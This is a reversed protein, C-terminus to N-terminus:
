PNASDTAFTVANGTPKTGSIGIAVFGEAIVPMGDYRATGRFVTQDEVFRVHESQAISTGAREM